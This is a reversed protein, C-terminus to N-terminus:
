LGFGGLGIRVSTSTQDSPGQSDTSANRYFGIEPELRFLSTVRIPVLIGSMLSSTQGSGSGATVLADGPDSIAVGLGVRPATPEQAAVATGLSLLAITCAFLIWVSVKMTKM